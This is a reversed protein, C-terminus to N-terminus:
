NGRVIQQYSIHDCNRGAQKSSYLAEDAASLAAAVPASDTIAAVGSSFTLGPHMSAWRIRMRILVDLAAEPSTQSLLLVFEEGGYRGAADEGRLSAILLEGFDALVQDGAAHGQRDNLAKFHDLDCMVLTDGSAAIALRDNLARRNILGTLADTHAHASLIRHDKAARDSRYSLLEGVLVWIILGISLRIGTVANWADQAAIWTAAAPAALYVSTRPPQTLGVYVFCLNILGTYAVAAGDDALGVATLAAFVSLPFILPLRSPEDSWSLCPCLAVLGLMLVSTAGLVPLELPTPDLLWISSGVILGCALLLARGLSVQVVASRPSNFVEAL